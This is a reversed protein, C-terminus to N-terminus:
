SYFNSFGKWIKGVKESTPLSLEIYRKGQLMTFIGCCCLVRILELYCLYMKAQAKIKRSQALSKRTM